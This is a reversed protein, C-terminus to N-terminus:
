LSIPVKRRVKRDQWWAITSSAMRSPRPAEAEIGLKESLMTETLLGKKAGEMLSEDLLRQQEAIAAGVGSSELASAMAASAASGLGLVASSQGVEAQLFPHRLAESASPRDTPKFALLKCLLDWPAGNDLSLLELGEQLEKNRPGEQRRWENLDWGYKAELVRLDIACLLNLILQHTFSYLYRPM